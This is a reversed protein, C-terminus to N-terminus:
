SSLGLFTDEYRFAVKAAAYNSVAAKSTEKGSMELWEFIAAAFSEHTLERAVVCGPQISLMECVGGIAPTSIVPTQLALAELVVNPAGEYDSTLLVADAAKMWGYPNSQFGVFRVYDSLMLNACLQQLMQRETGDGVIDLSATGIPILAFARLLRDVCKEPRLGGVFVFKFQTKRPRVTVHAMGKKSLSKIHKVDVPNHIIVAKEPPVYFNDILDQQMVTSQCIIRDLRRYFTKYLFRWLSQTRYQKMNVSVVSSERAIIKIKNPLFFRVMAMVLNLHSLNTFVLDPKARWLLSVLLPIALLVRSKNLSIVRIDPPLYAALAGEAKGLVVLCCDFKKRDFYRLLTVAVRESGGLNLNPLLVYLQKQSTFANM